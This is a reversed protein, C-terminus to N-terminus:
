KKELEEKTYEKDSLKKSTELSENAANIHDKYFQSNSDNFKTAGEKLKDYHVEHERRTLGHESVEMYKGNSQLKYRKGDKKIIDTSKSGEGERNRLYKKALEQRNTKESFNNVDEKSMKVPGIKKGDIIADISMGGEKLSTIHIDKFKFDEKSEQTSSKGAKWDAETYYYKYNGPTGERKFYKHGIAKELEEPEMSKSLQEFTSDQGVMSLINFAVYKEKM